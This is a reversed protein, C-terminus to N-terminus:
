RKNKNKPGGPWIKTGGFDVEKIKNGKKDSIDWHDKHLQDKKWRENKKKKDKPRYGQNGKLKDFADPNQNPTECKEEDAENRLAEGLWQGLDAALPAGYYIIGGALATAVYAEGVCM